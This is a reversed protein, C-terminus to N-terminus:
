KTAPACPAAPAPTPVTCAPNQKWEWREPSVCVRKTVSEVVPPTTVTDWHGPKVEVECVETTYVAPEVVAQRTPGLICVDDLRTRQVPPLTVTECNTVCRGCADAKTTARVETRAPGCTECREVSRTVGPVDLWTTREPQVLVRNVKTEYVPPVWVQTTTACVTTVEETVDKYVAPVLVRCWAEGPKAGAPMGATPAASLPGCGCAPKPACDCAPKPACGCDPTCTGRGSAPCPMEGKMVGLYDCWPAKEACNCPQRGKMVELYERNPGRNAATCGALSCLAVAATLLAGRVSPRTARGM